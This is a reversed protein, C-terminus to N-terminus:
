RWGILDFGKLIPNYQYAFNAAKQFIGEPNEFLPQKDFPTM